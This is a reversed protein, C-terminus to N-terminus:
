TTGPITESHIILFCVATLATLQTLAPSSHSVRCVVHIVISWKGMETRLNSM